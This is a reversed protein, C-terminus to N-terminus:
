VNKKLKKKLGLTRVYEPGEQLSKILFSRGLTRVYAHNGNLSEFLYKIVTSPLLGYVEASVPTTYQTTSYKLAM